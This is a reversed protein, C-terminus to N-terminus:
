VDLILTFKLEPKIHQPQQSQESGLQLHQDKLQSELLQHEVEAEQLVMQVEPPLVKEVLPLHSFLLRGLSPHTLTFGGDLLTFEVNMYREKICFPSVPVNVGNQPIFGQQVIWNSTCYHKQACFTVAIDRDHIFIWKTLGMTYMVVTEGTAAESLNSTSLFLIGSM